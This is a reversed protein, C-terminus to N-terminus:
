LKPWHWCFFYILLVDRAHLDFSIEIGTILYLLLTILCVLLGSSVPEPINYRRLLPFRGSLLKGMFLVIIGLNFTTLMKLEM